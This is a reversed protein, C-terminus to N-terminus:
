VRGGIPRTRAGLPTNPVSAPRPQTNCRSNGVTLNDTSAPRLCHSAPPTPVSPVTPRRIGASNWGLGERAATHPAASQTPACDNLLGLYTGEWVSARPRLRRRWLAAAGGDNTGEATTPLSPRRRWRREVVDVDGHRPRLGLYPGEWVSARPRLRRRWLAAAGGDNHHGGSTPLSPRRRRQREVVDVDGHRPRPRTRKARGSRM